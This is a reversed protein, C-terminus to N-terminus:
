RPPFTEVGRGERRLEGPSNKEGRGERKLEGPPPPVCTAPFTEVGRGEIQMEGPPALM